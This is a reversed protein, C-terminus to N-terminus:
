VGRRAGRRNGAAGARAFGLFTEIQERALPLLRYVRATAPPTWEMPQTTLVVNGKFYQEVFDTIRARTDASVENLGDICIDIAGSHVLQRLFDADRAMGLLKAQIAELVGNECRRAPLFM